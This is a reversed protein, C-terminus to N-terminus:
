PVVAKITSSKASEDGSISVATAAYYYTTSNSVTSDDYLTSAILSSNIKTWKSQDISRYLNYGAIDKSSSARWSLDVVHNAGSQIAVTYTKSAVNKNCDKVQLVFSYSAAKTPKGSLDLAGSSVTEKTIGAPLSGTLIAWTYPTCGGSAKIAASYSSDVTGNPLTSTTISVNAAFCPSLLFILAIPSLYFKM